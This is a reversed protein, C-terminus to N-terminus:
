CSNDRYTDKSHIGFGDRSKCRDDQANMYKDEKEM